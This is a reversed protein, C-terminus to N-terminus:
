LKQVAVFVRRGLALHPSSSRAEEIVHNLAEGMEERLAAEQRCVAEYVALQRERHNRTEDYIIVAFGAQHFAWRFYLEDYPYSSSGPVRPKISDWYTAVLRGGPRLIRATERMVALKDGFAGFADVSMAGDISGDELGTADATSVQFVPEDQMGFLAARQTAQAIGVVSDDIGILRSRMARAVWLGPGGRGCGLDVLLQGPQLRLTRATRRLDTLTVFGYPAAEGPYDDGYVEKWIGTLTPSQEMVAYIDDYKM